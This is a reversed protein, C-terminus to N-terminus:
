PSAMQTPARTPALEGVGCYSLAASLAFAAALKTRRWLRRFFGKRRAPKVKTPM